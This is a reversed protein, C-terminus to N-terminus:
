HGSEHHNSEPDKTGDHHSNDHNTNHSNTDSHEMSETHAKDLQEELHLQEEQAAAEQSLSEMDIQFEKNIKDQYATAVRNSIAYIVGFIACAGVFAIIWATTQDLTARRKM